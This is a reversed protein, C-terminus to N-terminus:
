DLAVAAGADRACVTVTGHGHRYANDVLVDLIQRVAASSAAATFHDESNVHLRRGAAALIGHWREHVDDLLDAVEACSSDYPTRALALVDDITASLQDASVLADVAAARLTSRDGDLASELELRLATLPTRLQHSATASTAREREILQELQGTTHNLADAVQ